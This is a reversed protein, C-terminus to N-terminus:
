KEELCLVETAIQVCGSCPVQHGKRIERCHVAGCRAKFDEKVKEIRDPAYVKLIECIGYLAGCLGEPARGGGCTRFIEKAAPTLPFKERCAEVVAEACNHKKYENRGLFRDVADSSIIATM